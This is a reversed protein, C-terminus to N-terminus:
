GAQGLATEITCAQIGILSTYAPKIWGFKKNTLLSQWVGM